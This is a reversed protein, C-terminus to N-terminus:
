AMGRSRLQINEEMIDSNTGKFFPALMEDFAAMAPGINIEDLPVGLLRAAEAADQLSEQSTYPSPMM